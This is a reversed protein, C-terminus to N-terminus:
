CEKGENPILRLVRDATYADQWPATISEHEGLPPREGSDNYPSWLDHPTPERYTFSDVDLSEVVVEQDGLRTGCTDLPNFGTFYTKEWEAAADFDSAEAANKELLDALDIWGAEQRDPLHIAVKGNKFDLVTVAYGFGGYGWDSM